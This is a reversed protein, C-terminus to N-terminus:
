LSEGPATGAHDPVQVTGPKGQRASDLYTDTQGNCSLTISSEPCIETKGYRSIVKPYVTSAIAAMVTSKGVANEGVLAYIGREFSFNYDFSEINKIKNMKVSINLSM